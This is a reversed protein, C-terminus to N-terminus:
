SQSNLSIYIIDIIKKKRFLLSKRNGRCYIHYAAGPYWIRKELIRLRGKM